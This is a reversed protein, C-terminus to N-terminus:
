YINSNIEQVFRFQIKIVDKDKIGESIEIVFCTGDENLTSVNDEFITKLTEIEEM